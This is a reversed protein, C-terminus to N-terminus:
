HTCGPSVTHHTEPQCASYTERVRGAEEEHRQQVAKAWGLYSVEKCHSTWLWLMKRPVLSLRWTRHPRKIFISKYTLGFVAFVYNHGKLLRGSAIYSSFDKGISEDKCVEVKAKVQGLAGQATDCPESDKAQLSNGEGDPGGDTLSSPPADDQEEATAETRGSGEEGNTEEGTKVPFEVVNLTGEGNLEREEQEKM